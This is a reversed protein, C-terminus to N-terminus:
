FRGGKSIKKDVYHFCSHILNLAILFIEICLYYIFVSIYYAFFIIIYNNSNLELIYALSNCANLVFPITCNNCIVFANSFDFTGLRFGQLLLAVIPFMLLISFLWAFCTNFIKKEM